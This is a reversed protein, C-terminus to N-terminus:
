PAESQSKFGSDEKISGNDKKLVSSDGPRGARSQRDGGGKRKWRTHENRIQDVEDYQQETYHATTTDIFWM